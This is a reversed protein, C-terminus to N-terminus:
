EYSFGRRLDEIPSRPVAEGVINTTMLTDLDKEGFNGLIWCAKVYATESIVNELSIVGMKKLLRGTDYVNM